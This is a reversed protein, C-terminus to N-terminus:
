VKFLDFNMHYVGSPKQQDVEQSVWQLLELFRRKIEQRLEENASFSATFFYDQEPPQNQLRQIAKLRFQTAFNGYLSSRPDLHLNVKILRLGKKETVVVGCRELVQIAGRIHTSSTGIEQGILGPEALFKPITLFMHVIPNLPDGYYEVFNEHTPKIAERGLYRDSSLEKERIQDLKIIIEQKRAEIGCRDMEHLLMLYEREAASLNFALAFLYVQDSSLSASDNLVRSLYSKQVQIEQALLSHSFSPDVRKRERLFAKILYKYDKFSYVSVMGCHYSLTFM